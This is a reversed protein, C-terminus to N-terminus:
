PCAQCLCQRTPSLPFCRTKGINEDHWAAVHLAVQSTSTIELVRGLIYSRHVKNFENVFFSVHMLRYNLAQQESSSPYKEEELEWLSGM